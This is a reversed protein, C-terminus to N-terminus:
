SIAESEFNTILLDCVSRRRIDVYEWFARKLYKTKRFDSFTACICAFLKYNM